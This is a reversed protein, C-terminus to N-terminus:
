PLLREETMLILSSFLSYYQIWHQGLVGNQLVKPLHLISYVIKFLKVWMNKRIKEKATRDQYQGGRKKKKTAKLQPLWNLIISCRPLLQWYLLLCKRSRPVTRWYSAKVKLSNVLWYNEKIRRKGQLTNRSNRKTRQRTSIRGWKIEESRQHQRQTSM